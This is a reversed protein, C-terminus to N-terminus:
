TVGREDADSLIGSTVLEMEARAWREIGEPAMPDVGLHRQMHTRLLMMGFDAALLYLAMMQPDELDRVLGASRMDAFGDLTLALMQDFLTDGAPGGAIVSRSIYELVAPEDAFRTFAKVGHETTAYQTFDELVDTTFEVVFDDVAQRLGDKSGFHHLILAPSVEAKAAIARVSTGAAGDQAFLELAM